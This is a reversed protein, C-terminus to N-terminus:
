RIRASSNKFAQAGLNVTPNEKVRIHVQLTALPGPANPNDTGLTPMLVEVAVGSKGNKPKYASLSKELESEIRQERIAVVPINFFYPEGNLKVVLDPQVSEIEPNPLTVGNM